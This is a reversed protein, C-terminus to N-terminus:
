PESVDGILEYVDEELDDGNEQEKIFLNRTPCQSTGNKYCRFSEVGKAHHKSSKGM